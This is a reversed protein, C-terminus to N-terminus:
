YTYYQNRIRKVTESDANFPNDPAKRINLKEMAFPIDELKRNYAETMLFELSLVDEINYSLLTELSTSNGSKKYDNWLLVAFFGDIDSLAGTRELGLQKECSKLGGSYGLSRLIYRLDLQSQSITIRFYREIFPIDFTRGNYTVIVKYQQIDKKFDNLNEGNVYYRIDKGDYLAITTIIDGPAGLGTTEIDLYVASDQYERFIRWHEKPPLHNLFYLPDKCAIKEKSTHIHETFIRKKNSSIFDPPSALFDDMSRIGSNWIKRETAEGVSPIHLFSCHLM